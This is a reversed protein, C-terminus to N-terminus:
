WGGYSIFGPIVGLAIAGPDTISGQFADTFNEVKGQGLQVVGIIIIVSFAAVKVWTFIVLARATWKVTLTNMAAFSVPIFSFM